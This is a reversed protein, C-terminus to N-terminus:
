SRSSGSVGRQREGLGSTAPVTLGVDLDVDLGGDLPDIASDFVDGLSVPLDEWLLSEDRVGREVDRRRVKGAKSDKDAACRM